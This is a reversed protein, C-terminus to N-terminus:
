VSFVEIDAVTFNRAGTFTNNGYALTDNYGHPFNTYSGANGNCADSIHLDHGGGWSPGYTPHNYPGNSKNHFHTPPSGYPNTLTFIFSGGGTSYGSTSAWSNPNYGGFLYGGSSRIITVTPGVNNCLAHFQAGGFGNRSGRYRLVWHRPTGLWVQIMGYFPITLLISDAPFAFPFVGTWAGYLSPNWFPPVVVSPDPKAELKAQLVNLKGQMEKEVIQTNLEAERKIFTTEQQIKEIEAKQKQEQLKMKFDLEMHRREAAAEMKAFMLEQEKKYVILENNNPASSSSQKKMEEVIVQAVIRSCGFSELIEVSCYKLARMTTIQNNHLHNLVNAFGIDELFKQLENDAM